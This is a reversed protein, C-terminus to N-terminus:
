GGAFSPTRALRLGMTSHMTNSTGAGAVAEAFDAGPIRWLTVDTYATVTATRGSQRLLGIEGFWDDPGLDPIATIADSATVVLTGDLVVYLDDSPEGEGQTSVVRQM